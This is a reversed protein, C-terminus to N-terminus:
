NTDYGLTLGWTRGRTYGGLIFNSVHFTNQLVREDSLNKVDLSIRWRNDSSRFTVFANTFTVAESVAQSVFPDSLDVPSDTYMEDRYNADLGFSVAGARGVNTTYQVRAQATLEPALGLAHHDAVNGLVGVDILEDIEVDLVGLNLNVALGDVPPLWLLEMEAGRSVVAGVNDNTQVLSGGTLTVVTFQKDEYDNQFAEFNLRM